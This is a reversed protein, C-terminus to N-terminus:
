APDRPSTAHIRAHPPAQGALAARINDYLASVEALVGRRSGGGVHPTLVVNQLSCLRDEPVRPEVAHVDLGAGAIWGASLAEYLADEDVLAGRSTNILFADSRMNALADRDILRHNDPTNPVHLSVFQAERLLEPLPLYTAGSREEIEPSLRSRNTYVINMGFSRARESVLRGVEGLGVIGLTKGHLGDISDIGPWNYAVKNVPALVTPDYHGNRVMADALLLRKALALMLMLAHEAALALTRRPLCSVEVARDHAAHLDIGESGAGLRQILRLSPASEIAARDVRGRRFVIAAANKLCQPEDPDHLVVEFGDSRRLGIGLAHLERPEVREPAFFAKLWDDEPGGLESLILRALKVVHDDDLFVIQRDMPPTM